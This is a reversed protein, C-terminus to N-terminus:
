PSVGRVRDLAGAIGECVLGHWWTALTAIGDVDDYPAPWGALTLEDLQSVVDAGVVRRLREASVVRGRGAVPM